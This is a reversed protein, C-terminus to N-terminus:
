STMIDVEERIKELWTKNFCLTVFPYARFMRIITGSSIEWDEACLNEFQKLVERHSIHSFDLKDKIIKCQHDDCGWYLCRSATTCHAWSDQDFLCAECEPQKENMIKQVKPALVHM